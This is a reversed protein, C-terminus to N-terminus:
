LEKRGLLYDVSVEYLDAIKVLNELTPESSGNEYRIYSPQSIGLHEAVQRQTYGYLTRQELLKEQFTKM